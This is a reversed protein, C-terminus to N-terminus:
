TKYISENNFTEELFDFDLHDGKVVFSCFGSDSSM